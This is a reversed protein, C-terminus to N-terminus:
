NKIRWNYNLIVGFSNHLLFIRLRSPLFSVIV